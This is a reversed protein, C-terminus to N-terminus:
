NILMQEKAEDLGFRRKAIEAVDIKPIQGTQADYLTQPKPTDDDELEHAATYDGKNM